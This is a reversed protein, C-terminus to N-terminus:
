ATAPEPVSVILRLGQEPIQMSYTRVPGPGHVPRSLIRLQYVPDLALVGANWHEAAGPFQMLREVLEHLASTRGLDALYTSRVRGVLTEYEGHVEPIREPAAQSFMWLISNRSEEPMETPDQVDEALARNWALANWAIDTLLAPNPGMADLMPQMYRVDSSDPWYTPPPPWFLALRFLADHEAETMGLKLAVQHLFRPEPHLMRGREFERYSRESMGLLRGTQKQTLGAHGSDASEEVLGPPIPARERAGRLLNSLHAIRLDEGHLSSTDAFTLYEAMSHDNSPDDCATQLREGM